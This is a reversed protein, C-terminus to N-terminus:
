GHTKVKRIPTKTYYLEENTYKKIQECNSM